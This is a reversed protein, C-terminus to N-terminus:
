SLKESAAHSTTSEVTSHSRSNSNVSLDIRSWCLMLVLTILPSYKHMKKCWEPNAIFLEHSVARQHSLVKTKNTKFKARATHRSIIILRRHEAAGQWPNMCKENAVTYQGVPCCSHISLIFFERIYETCTHLLM